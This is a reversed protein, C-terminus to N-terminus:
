TSEAPEANDADNGPRGISGAPAASPARRPPRHADGQLGRRDRHRRGPPITPRPWARHKARKVGFSSMKRKVVRPFARLRRIPLLHEAIEGTMRALTRAPPEPSFAAQGTTIVQRRVIRLSRTFSLRDPDVDVALAAQHMLRRIAHHVLLMGWLEQAVMDPSKSRLVVGPGRQHTKLEDLAAEFEWRQHYLAALEAAPAQTPDLISTLLRYPAPKAPRGRDKGLTYEVVWVTIPDRRHRHDSAAVIQSRYSGDALPQVVPLVANRKTRWVLAAGTATAQRWLGFGAVGRDALLLVGASCASYRPALTVEGSTFPGITAQIIAHTGCEAVALLRVQPFAAQEGRSSPPRGFGAADAPTDPVELTTGDLSLVRWGRYWAGGTEETALPGASRRFLLELPEPGLRARAKAIAPTSPVRWWQRWRRAWGLGGALLRAVEEYAQGSFLAMALVLWVVVRAPLLRQREERRGAEAVVQDVLAPPYTSTLVGIAIRDSLREVVPPKVQGARPM